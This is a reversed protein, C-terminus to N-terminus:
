SSASLVGSAAEGARREASERDEESIAGSGPSDTVVLVAAAAIGLAATRILVAVTQM